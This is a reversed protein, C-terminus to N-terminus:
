WPISADRVAVAVMGGVQAHTQWGWHLGDPNAWGRDLGEQVVSSVDVLAVDNAQAWRHSAVVSPAHFRQSPYYPSRMPSPTIAVIPLAPYLMRVAQVSRTLYHDTAVQPLQRLPGGTVRMVKPATANYAKRVSRRLRGPRLYAIGQRLYTPIAAPLADMGGVGIVLADARPLYRGWVMPDRTLAWWGDRATWGIGAVLDVQAGLQAATRNPWLREDDPPYAEDPGHFTLSDGIVLLNM